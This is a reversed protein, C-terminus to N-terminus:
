NEKTGTSRRLTAALAQAVDKVFVLQL